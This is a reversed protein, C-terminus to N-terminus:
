AADRARQAHDARPGRRDRVHIADRLAPRGHGRSAGGHPLDKYTKRTGNPLLKASLPGSDAYPVIQDDDGHLVLVPVTIRKLDETFDTQSFAVIGDYHAKAGGMMGQRWWNAIVAEDPEVGDRNFGYFPGEPVARYFASRNTAVQVQFDHAGAVHFVALTEPLALVHKWFAKVQTRSHQRLQVAILAQLRAMSLALLDGSDLRVSTPRLGAAVGPPAYVALDDRLLPTSDFPGVGGPDVCVAVDLENRELRGLLEGTPAVTYGIDLEPHATRFGDVADADGTVITFLDQATVFGPVSVSQGQDTAM